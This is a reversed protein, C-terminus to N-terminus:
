NFPEAWGRVLPQLPGSTIGAGSLAASLACSSYSLPAADGIEQNLNAQNACLIGGFVKSEYEFVCAGQVIILGYFTFDGGGVRLSGDALLIGQGASGTTTFEVDGAFHIIPFYSSCPSGSNLPDGWNSQVTTDCQGGGDLVPGFSGPQSNPPYSKDAMAVLDSYTFDGFTTFTNPGVTPDVLIPPDGLITGPGQSIDASDEVIIGPLAPGPLYGKCPWGPPSADNGDIISTPDSVAEMPGLTTVTARVFDEVKPRPESFYMVVQRHGGLPGAGRGDVLLGFVTQGGNDYRQIVARYSAGNDLTRSGLDLSDGPSLTKVASDPWTAWVENMGAEAAYLAISSERMARSARQEDVATRLAVVALLSLVVMALVVAPIVFGDHNALVPRMERQKEDM